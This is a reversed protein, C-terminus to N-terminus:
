RNTSLELGIQHIAYSLNPFIKITISNTVRNFILLSQPSVQISVAIYDGSAASGYVTSCTISSKYRSSVSKDSLSIVAMYVYQTSGYVFFSYISSSVLLSESNSMTWTGSPWTMALSWNPSTNGFTHKYIHVNYPSTIDQGIM